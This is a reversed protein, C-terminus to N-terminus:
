VNVNIKRRTKIQYLDFVVMVEKLYHQWGNNSDRPVNTFLAV